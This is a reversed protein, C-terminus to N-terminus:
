ISQVRPSSGAAESSNAPQSKLEPRIFYKRLRLAPKEIYIWSITSFLVTLAAVLPLVILYRVPWPFGAMYPSLVFITAQTIPFGYLYIGYSLDLKVLRDFVPFATMGIYVTCYTLFVGSIPGLQDFITLVYYGAASILFLAPHLPIYRANIYFLVGYFFMVVIYWSTFHTSDERVSFRIPDYLALLVAIALVCIIGITARKHNAITGTAMALLMFFYCYFEPPLTWLNANVMGQWPNTLFVGPLTFSVHGVINGFYRFFQEDAFYSAAPLSTVLPGLVLASLMVEVSLAPLIRLARNAFFAKISTNRIASGVVLFGSLAFFMGVLAFLLPRLLEIALQGTTLHSVAGATLAAGKSYVGPDEHFIAVRCHHALIVLALLHRLMHFGPGIGRNRKLGEDLTM